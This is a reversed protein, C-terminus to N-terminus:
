LHLIFITPMWLVRIWPLRMPWVLIIPRTNILLRLLRHFNNNFIIRPQPCSLHLRPAILTTTMANFHIPRNLCYFLLTIQCKIRRSCLSNNNNSNSHICWPCKLKSILMWHHSISNSNSNLYWTILWLITWILWVKIKLWAKLLIPQNLFTNPYPLFLPTIFFHFLFLSLLSLQTKLAIFIYPHHRWLRNCVRVRTENTKTHM